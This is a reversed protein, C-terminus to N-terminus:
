TATTAITLFEPVTTTTMTPACPMPKLPHSAPQTSQFLAPGRASESFGRTASFSFGRTASFASLNHRDPSCRARAPPRTSPPSPPPPPPQTSSLPVPEDIGKLLFGEGLNKTGDFVNTVSPRRSSGYHHPPTSPTATITLILFTANGARGSLMLNVLDQCCHGFRGVLPM